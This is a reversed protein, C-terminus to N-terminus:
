HQEFADKKCKYISSKKFALQSRISNNAYELPCSKAFNKKFVSVFESLTYNSTIHLIKDQGIGRM